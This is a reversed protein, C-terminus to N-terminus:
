RSSSGARGRLRSEPMWDLVLDYYGHVARFRHLDRRAQLNTELIQETQIGVRVQGPNCPVLPHRHIGIVLVTTCHATTYFSDHHEVDWGYRDLWFSCENAYDEFFKSGGVVAIPGM